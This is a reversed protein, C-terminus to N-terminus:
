VWEGEAARDLLQEMVHEWTPLAQEAKYRALARYTDHSLRLWACGPFNRDMAERWTAVPLRYRAEHEWPIPLVELKGRADRCFATGSFLALLPVDGGELAGLYSASSAVEMDYTCPLALDVETSGSFGAVNRDVRAWLLSRQTEAWRDPTGFMALLGEAERSSYVRQRPEIRVQTSLVLAEVRAPTEIRLRLVVSPALTDVPASDGVVSFSLVSV